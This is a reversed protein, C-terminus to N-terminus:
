RRYLINLNNYLETDIEDLQDKTIRFQWNGGSKGPINLRTDSGYGLIDQIPFITLGASSSIIKKIISTCASDWDRPNHGCYELMDNKNNQDLEWLYGLLTNNDHTGSYAVCNNIYNHPQHINDYEGLFGFQFVRMGPFGSDEVLQVVENTIEGLDEAIILKDGAVEKLANVLHIGPGKVWKGNRAVCDQAPIAWFSEIGRFHDIRVGDFLKLMHSLREKWWDFDTEKMKDWDYLPNGWLQGDPSFYDPPCGAVSTPKNNELLFLESNSWVDCSDLSVYIPIDGIIKIGRSNAYEKVEAWQTFFEFQIFKWAFLVQPDPQDTEWEWWPKQGNAQKLSMFRCVSELQPESNIFAEIEYRNTARKSAEILLPIRTHYLRAFECSYPTEQKQQNLEDQTILGKKALKELNIFYPNGGFACYSQYPSNCDDVMCFPLVQWWTFGGEVLFDVFDKAENGFSGCSYEGYLSSIHMLVGSSREMM